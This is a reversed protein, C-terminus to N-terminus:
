SFVQINKSIDQMEYRIDLGAIVWQWNLVFM